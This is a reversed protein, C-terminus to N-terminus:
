VTIKILRLISKKLDEPLELDPTRGEFLETEAKKKIDAATATKSINFFSITFPGIELIVMVQNSNKKLTPLTPGTTFELPIGKLNAYLLLTDIRLARMHNNKHSWPEKNLKYALDELSDASNLNDKNVRIFDKLEKIYYDKLDM